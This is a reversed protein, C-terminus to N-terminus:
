LQFYKSFIVKLDNFVFPKAMMDNFGVDLLEKGENHMYNASVAIIISKNLQNEKEFLRIRKTAEYGDMEPLMLDMLVIQYPTERYKEVAMEGNVAIDPKLGFRKLILKLVQINIEYDDVILISDKLQTM